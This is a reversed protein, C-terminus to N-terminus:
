HAKGGNGYSGVPVRQGGIVTTKGTATWQMLVNLKGSYRSTLRPLNRQVSIGGLCTGASTPQILSIFPTIQLVKLVM